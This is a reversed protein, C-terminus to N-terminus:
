NRELDAFIRKLGEDSINPVFSSREAWIRRQRIDVGIANVHASALAVANAAHISNATAHQSLERWGVDEAVIWIALQEVTPAIAPFIDLGQFLWTLDRLEPREDASRVELQNGAGPPRASQSVPRAPITWPRADDTLLLMVGDRRAVMDGPEGPAEFYTGVPLTIVMDQPRTRRITLAVGEAGGGGASVEVAGQAIADLLDYHRIAPSEAGGAGAARLIFLHQSPLFEHLEALEFGAAEWELLVQLVSMRHEARISQASGDEVRYEVLAVRGTPTLSRRMAELMPVPQSLEHYVDVLLIWDVGGEPLGPDVDTGLVPVIGTLGAEQVNEALIQLMEEQVDVAYVTGGPAVLPAIRRTFYGSGAGVDAVVDGPELAMVRLVEAPREEQVRQPRELWDAGRFSMVAAPARARVPTPREQAIARTAGGCLLLLGLALFRLDVRTMARSRIPALSTMIAVAGSSRFSAGDAHGAFSAQPGLLGAAREPM